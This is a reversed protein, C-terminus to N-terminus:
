GTPLKDAVARLGDPSSFGTMSPMEAWDFVGKNHAAYHLLAKLNQLDSLTLETSPMVNLVAESLRKVIRQPSATCVVIEEDAELQSLVDAIAADLVPDKSM